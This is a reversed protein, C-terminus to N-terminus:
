TQDSRSKSQDPASSVTLADQDTPKRPGKPGPKHPMALFSELSDTYILWDRGLKFGELGGSRLLQTLYNKSLGTQKSAEPTTVYERKIKVEDSM